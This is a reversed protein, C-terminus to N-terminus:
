PTRNLVRDVPTESVPRAAPSRKVDNHKFWDALFDVLARVKAPLYRRHPYVAYIGADSGMLGPLVEVLRGANLDDNVIFDPSM